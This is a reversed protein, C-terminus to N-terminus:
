YEKLEKKNTNFFEISKVCGISTYYSLELLFWIAYSSLLSYPMTWKSKKYKTPMKPILNVACCFFRGITMLIKGQANDQSIAHMTYAMHESWPAGVKHTLAIMLDQQAKGRSEKPVWLMFDPGKGDMWQTVTRAWRIYGRYMAKDTKRLQRGYEQDAAWINTSMLGHEYLKGCVIKSCNCACNCAHSGGNCNACNYTCACNCNAQLWQQSDCNACNVTGSIFCNTDAINGCNCNSDCNGNACNGETTNQFYAKSYFATTNPNAPRQDSRILDNLFGLSTSYPQAVGLETAIISTNLEGSSQITM